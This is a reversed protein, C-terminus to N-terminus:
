TLPSTKCQAVVRYNEPCDDMARVLDAYSTDVKFLPPVKFPDNWLHGVFEIRPCGCGDDYGQWWEGDLMRRAKNWECAEVADLLLDLMKKTKAYKRGYFATKIRKREEDTDFTALGHKEFTIRM